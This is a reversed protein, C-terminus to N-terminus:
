LMELDAKLKEIFKEKERIEIEGQQV